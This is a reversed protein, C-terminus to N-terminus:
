FPLDDKSFNPMKRKKPRFSEEAEEYMKMEEKEIGEYDIEEEMTNVSKTTKDIIPLDEIKAFLDEQDVEVNDKTVYIVTSEYKNFEIIMNVKIHSVITKVIQSNSLLYVVQGPVFKLSIDACKKTGAPDDALSVSNDETSRNIFRFKNHQPM